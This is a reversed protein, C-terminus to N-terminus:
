LTNQVVIYLMSLTYHLQTKTHKKKLYIINLQAVLMGVKTYPLYFFTYHFLTPKVPPTQVWSRQIELIKVMAKGASAVCWHTFVPLGAPESFGESM